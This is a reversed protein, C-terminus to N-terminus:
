RVISSRNVLGISPGEFMSFPGVKTPTYATPEYLCKDEAHQSLPLKCEVCDPWSEIPIILIGKIIWDELVGEVVKCMTEKLSDTFRMEKFWELKDRLVEKLGDLSHKPMPGNFRWFQPAPNFGLECIGEKNFEMSVIPLM